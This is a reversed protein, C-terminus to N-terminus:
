MILNIFDKVSDMAQFAKPIPMQQFVHWCGPYVEYRAMSGSKRLKKVLKEADDRLIENSGVQVLTPPMDDLQAYLPSYKPDSYDADAGAYAIRAQNIYDYSLMPDKDEYTTYSISTLTMDTWPSMLILAKPLIRELERLRIMLELALNGGASDGALIVDRAGLGFKMIYDWVSLADEIAAPYPNEPSLRYQFTVVSIGTHNAFKEALIRAYNLGGNTYGGGHCYLIIKDQRHAFKPRVLECPVEGVNFEHIDILSMPTVLKSMRESEIRMKDIEEKVIDTRSITSSRVAKIAKMVFDMKEPDEVDRKTDERKGALLEIPSRM